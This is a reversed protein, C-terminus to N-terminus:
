ATCPAALGRIVECDFNRRSAGLRQLEDLVDSLAAKYKSIEQELADADYAEWAQRRASAEAALLRQVTPLQPLALAM